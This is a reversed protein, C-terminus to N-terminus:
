LREESTAATAEAIVQQFTTTVSNENFLVDETWVSFVKNNEFAYKEAAKFKLQNIHDNLIYNPKIELIYINNDITTVEMDPIYYHHVDGDVYDIKLNEVKVDIVDDCSELIELARKEYSSRYHYETDFRELYIKGTKGYGLSVGAQVRKAAALKMKAITEESNKIGKRAKSLKARTEESVNHSPNKDSQMRISHAMVREDVEKSLGKNWPQKYKYSARKAESWPLQRKHLAYHEQNCYKQESKKWATFDEGCYPCTRTEKSSAKQKVGGTHGVLFRNGPKAQKGCGCECLNSKVKLNKM